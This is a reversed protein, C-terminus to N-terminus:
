QSRLTRATNKSVRLSRASIKLVGSIRASKELTRTNMAPMMSVRLTSALTKLVRM